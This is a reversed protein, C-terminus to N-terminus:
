RQPKRLGFSAHASIGPAKQRASSARAPQRRGATVVAGPKDEAARRWHSLNSWHRSNRKSGDEDLESEEIRQFRHQGLGLGHLGEDFRRYAGADLPPANLRLGDYASQM